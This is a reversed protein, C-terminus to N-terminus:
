AFTSGRSLMHLHEQTKTSLLYEFTSKSLIVLPTFPTLKTQDTIHGLNLTRLPHIPFTFYFSYTQKPHTCFCGRSSYVYHICGLYLRNILSVPCQDVDVKLFVVSMYKVSLQMFIPAIRQCPGCRVFLCIQVKDFLQKTL